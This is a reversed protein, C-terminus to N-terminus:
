LTFNLPTRTVIRVTSLSYNNCIRLTNTAKTIWYAFNMRRIAMQPRDTVVTDKWMVEYATFNESFIVSCWIHYKNERCIQRLFEVNQSSNLSITDFIYV